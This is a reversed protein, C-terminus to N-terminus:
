NQKGPQPHLEGDQKALAAKKNASFMLWIAVLMALLFLIIPVIWVLLTLGSMPPEYLVFDGYREVLFAKIETDTRNDSMLTRVQQRLDIAIPADSDALNQNQCKPCRLEEILKQYRYRESESSFEVLEVYSHAVSVMGTLWIFLLVRSLQMMIRKM